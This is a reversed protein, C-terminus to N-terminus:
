RLSGANVSMVGTLRVSHLLGAQKWSVQVAMRPVSASQDKALTATYVTGGLSAQTSGDTILSAPLQSISDYVVQGYAYAQDMRFSAVQAKRSSVVMYTLGPLVLGLIVMAVMSEVLTYGRRM